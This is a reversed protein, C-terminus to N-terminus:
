ILLEKILSLMETILPLCILLIEIKGALEIGGSLSSEGMDRCISGVTSVVIGIGLSKLMVAGYDTMKSEAMMDKLASVAGSFRLVVASLIMLCAFVAVSVSIHRASNKLILSCSAAILAAGCLKFLLTM